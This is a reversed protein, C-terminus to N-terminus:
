DRNEHQSVVQFEQESGFEVTELKHGTEHWTDMHHCLASRSGLMMKENSANCYPHPCQINQNEGERESELK